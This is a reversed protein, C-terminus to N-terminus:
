SEQTFHKMKALCKDLEKRKETLWIEMIDGNGKLQTQEKKIGRGMKFM